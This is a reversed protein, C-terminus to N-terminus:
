GDGDEVADLVVAGACGPSEDPSFVRLGRGGGQGREEEVYFGVEHEVAGGLHVAVDERADADAEEEFHSQM